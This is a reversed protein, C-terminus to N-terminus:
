IHEDDAGNAARLIKRVSGTGAPHDQELIMATGKHFTRSTQLFCSGRAIASVQVAGGLVWDELAKLNM